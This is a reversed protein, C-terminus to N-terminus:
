ESRSGRKRRTRERRGEKGVDVTGCDMRREMRDRGADERKGSSKGLGRLVSVSASVCMCLCLCLCVSVCVCVFVGAEAVGSISEQFELAYM